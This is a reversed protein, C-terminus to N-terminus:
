PINFVLIDDTRYHWGCGYFPQVSDIMNDAGCDYKDNAWTEPDFGITVFTHDWNSSGDHKVMVISGFGIAYPSDSAEFGHAALYADMDGVTIGGQPQDTFGLDYLAKAVMRDCSIIGDTTPDWATSSGYTYGCLRATECVRAVSNVFEERTIPFANRSREHFLYYMYSFAEYISCRHTADYTEQEHYNLLVEECAWLVSTPYGDGSPPLKTQASDVKPSGSGIWLFHIAEGATIAEDGADVFGDTLLGQKAAWDLAESLEQRSERTEASLDGDAEGDDTEAREANGYRDDAYRKMAVLFVDRTCPESMDPEEDFLGESVLWRGIVDDSVAAISPDLQEKEEAYVPIGTIYVAICAIVAIIKLPKTRKRVCM